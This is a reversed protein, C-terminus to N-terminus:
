AGASTDAAEEVWGLRSLRERAARVAAGARGVYRPHVELQVTLVRGRAALMELVAPEPQRLDPWPPDAGADIWPPAHLYLGSGDPRVHMAHLHFYAARGAFRDTPCGHRHVATAWDNVDMCLAIGPPLRSVRESFEVLGDRLGLSQKPELVIEMDLGRGMDALADLRRAVEDAGTWREGRQGFHVLLYDAGCGDVRRRIVELHRDFETPTSSLLRLDLGDGALLPWHIGFSAPALADLARSLADAGALMSLEYHRVGFGRLAAWDHGSPVAPATPHLGAPPRGLVGRDVVFASLGLRYRASM